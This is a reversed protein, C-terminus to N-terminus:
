QTGPKLPLRSYGDKRESADAYEILAERMIDHVKRWEPICLVEPSIDLIAVAQCVAAHLKDIYQTSNAKSGAGVEDM